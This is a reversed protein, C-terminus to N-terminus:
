ELSSVSSSFPHWFPIRIGKALGLFLANIERCKWSSNNQVCNFKSTVFFTPIKNKVGSFDANSRMWRKMQKAQFTSKWSALLCLSQSLFVNNSLLDKKKTPLLFDCLDNETTFCVHDLYLLCWSLCRMFLSISSLAANFNPTMTVDRDYSM